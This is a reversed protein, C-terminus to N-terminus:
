EGKYPAPLSMWADVEYSGCIFNDHEDYWGTDSLDSYHSDYTNQDVRHYAIIMTHGYQVLVDKEDDPLRDKVPIWTPRSELAIIAKDFAEYLCDDVTVLPNAKLSETNQIIISRAKKDTM